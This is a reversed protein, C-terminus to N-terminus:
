SPLTKLLAKSLQGYHIRVKYAPVEGGTKNYRATNRTRGKESTPIRSILLFTLVLRRGGEAKRRGV